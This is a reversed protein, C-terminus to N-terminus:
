HELGKEGFSGGLIRDAATDTRSCTMVPPGKVGGGSRSFHRRPQRFTVTEDPQVAGHCRGSRNGDEGYLRRLYEFALDMPVPGLDFRRKPRAGEGPLRASHKAPDPEIPLKHQSDIWMRQEVVMIPPLPEFRATEFPRERSRAARMRSLMGQREGREDGTGVVNGLHLPGLFVDSRTVNILDIEGMGPASVPGGVRRKEWEILSQPLDRWCWM